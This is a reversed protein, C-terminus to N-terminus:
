DVDAEIGAVYFVYDGPSDYRTSITMLMNIKEPQLWGARSWYAPLDIGQESWQYLQAPKIVFMLGCEECQFIEETDTEDSFGIVVSHGDEDMFHIGAGLTTRGLIETNVEPFVGVTIQGEPFPMEQVIGAHTWELEGDQEGDEYIALRLCKKDGVYAEGMDAEDGEGKILVPDWGLPSKMEEGRVWHEFDGNFIGEAKAGLLYIETSCRSDPEVVKVLRGNLHVEEVLEAIEERYPYGWYRTWADLVVYDVGENMLDTVIEGPPKKELWLLAFTNIALTGNLNPSMALYIPNPAYVKKAGAAELYDVTERCVQEENSAFWSWNIDYGTYNNLLVITVGLFVLLTALVVLLGAKLKATLLKMNVSPVLWSIGLFLFPYLAIYYRPLYFFGQCLLLSVVLTVVLFCDSKSFDEKNLIILIFPIVLLIPLFAMKLFSFASPAIRILAVLSPFETLPRDTQLLVTQSFFEQPTRIWFFGTVCIFGLVTGGVLLWLGKNRRLGWLELWWKKFPLEKKLMVASIFFPVVFVLIVVMVDGATLYTPDIFPVAVDLWFVYRLLLLFAYFIGAFCAYMVWLEWRGLKKISQWFGENMSLLIAAAIIAVAAPIFVYKTAIALGLFLGCLLARNAKRNFIFDIAFYVALLIFFIGLTEQVSRRGLYVMMTSVAFLAAAALGARPHYMKKGILYILIICALSLAVSLYKGAFFSYGFVKYISALVLHYLPPHVVMFDQYPLYGQTIFRAGLAYVAEDYDHIANFLHQIQWLRLYAGLALVGLLILIERDRSVKSLRSLFRRPLSLWIDLKSKTEKGM